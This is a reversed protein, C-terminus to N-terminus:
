NMKKHYNYYEYLVFQFKYEFLIRIIYLTANNTGYYYRLEPNRRRKDKKVTPMMSATIHAHAHIRDGGVVGSCPLTRTVPVEQRSELKVLAYQM